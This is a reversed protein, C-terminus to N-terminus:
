FNIGIRVCAMHLGKSLQHVDNKVAFSEIGNYVYSVTLYSTFTRARALNFGVGPSVYLASGEEGYSVNNFVVGARLDMFMLTPRSTFSTRLLGYVPFARVSSSVMMNVSAGVGVADIWSNKYGFFADLNISSLNNSTMDIAGGVEAGWTFHKWGTIDYSSGAEATSATAAIFLAVLASLLKKM